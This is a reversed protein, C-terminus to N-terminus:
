CIFNVTTNVTLTSLFPQYELFSLVTCKGLKKSATTKGTELIWQFFVSNRPEIVELDVNWFHFIIVEVVPLGQVRQLSAIVDWHSL